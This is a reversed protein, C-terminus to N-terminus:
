HWIVRKIRMYLDKCENPEAIYNVIGFLVTSLLGLIIAYIFWMIFSTLNQPVLSWSLM